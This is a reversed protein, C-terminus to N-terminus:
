NGLKYMESLHINKLHDANYFQIIENKLKLDNMTYLLLINGISKRKVNKLIGVNFKNLQLKKISIISIGSSDITEILKPYQSYIEITEFYITDSNISHLQIVFFNGMYFSKLDHKRLISCGSFILVLLLNIILMMVKWRDFYKGM